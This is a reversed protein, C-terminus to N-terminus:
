TIVRADHRSPQARKGRRRKSGADPWNAPTSSRPRMSRRRRAGSTARGFAGSFVWKRTLRVLRLKDDTLKPANKPKLYLDIALKKVLLPDSPKGTAEELRYAVLSALVQLERVGTRVAIGVSLTSTAIMAWPVRSFRASRVLLRVAPVASYSSASSRTPWSRRTPVARSRM